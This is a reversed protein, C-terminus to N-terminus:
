TEHGQRCFYTRFEFEVFIEYYCNGELYLTREDYDQFFNNWTKLRIYDDSVELVEYPEFGSDYDDKEHTTRSKDVQIEVVLHGFFDNALFARTQPTIGEIDDLSKLTLPVNSRWKGLIAEHEVPKPDCGMLTLAAVLVLCQSTMKLLSVRRVPASRHFDKLRIAKEPM